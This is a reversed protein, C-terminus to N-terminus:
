LSSWKQPRCCPSTPWIPLHCVYKLLLLCTAKTQNFLLSENKFSRWPQPWAIREMGWYIATNYCWRQRWAGDPVRLWLGVQQKHGGARTKRRNSGGTIKRTVTDLQASRTTNRLVSCSLLAESGQRRTVVATGLSDDQTLKTHTHTYLPITARKVGSDSQQNYFSHHREMRHGVCVCVRRGTERSTLKYGGWISM